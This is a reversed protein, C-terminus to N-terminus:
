KVIIEDAFVWAPKGASSHGVPLVGNKASVRIYRAGEGPFDAVYNQIVSKEDPSVTNSVVKVEKFTKGDLSTEFKVQSPMFIWDSYNQLFGASIQKVEKRGVPRYYRDFRQRQHWAL